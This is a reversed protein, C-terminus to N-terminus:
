FWSARVVWEDETELNIREFYLQRPGRSVRIDYMGPALDLTEVRAANHITTDGISVDVGPEQLYVTVRSSRDGRFALHGGFAGATLLLCVLVNNLRM